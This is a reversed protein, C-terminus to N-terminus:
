TEHIVISAETDLGAPVVAEAGGIDLDYTVDLWFGPFAGKFSLTHRGKSLPKLMIYCGASNASYHSGPKMGGMIPTDSFRGSFTPSAMWHADVNELPRGDLVVEAAQANNKMREVSEQSWPESEADISISNLIPFFIARNEPIQCSRRVKGSTGFVGGLFWVPGKQGLHATRGTQDFLPNEPWPVSFAWQWWKASWEGYTFDYPRSAPDFVRSEIQELPVAAGEPAAPHDSSRGCGLAVFFVAFVVM